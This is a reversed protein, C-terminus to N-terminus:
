ITKKQPPTSNTREGLKAMLETAQLNVELTRSQLYVFKVVLDMYKVKILKSNAKLKHSNAITQKCNISELSKNEGNLRDKPEIEELKFESNYIANILETLSVRVPKKSKVIQEALEKARHLELKQLRFTNCLEQNTYILEQYVEQLEQQKAQLELNLSETLDRWSEIHKQLFEIEEQAALLREDTAIQETFQQDQQNGQM